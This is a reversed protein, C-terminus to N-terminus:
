TEAAQDLAGARGNSGDILALLGKLIEIPPPLCGTVHLLPESIIQCNVTKEVAGTLAIETLATLHEVGVSRVPTLRAKESFFKAM